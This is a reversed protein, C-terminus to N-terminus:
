DRDAQRAAIVTAWSQVWADPTQGGTPQLDVAVLAALMAAVLRADDGSVCALLDSAAAFASATEFGYARAQEIIEFADSIPGLTNM